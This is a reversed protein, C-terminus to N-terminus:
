ALKTCPDPCIKALLSSSYGPNTLTRICSRRRAPEYVRHTSQLNRSMSPDRAIGVAAISAVEAWDNVEDPLGDPLVKGGHLVVRRAHHLGADVRDSEPVIM